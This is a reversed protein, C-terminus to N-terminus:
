VFIHGTPTFTGFSAGNINVNVTTGATNTASVTITQGAANGGVADYTGLDFKGDGARICRSL